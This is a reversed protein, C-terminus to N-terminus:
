QCDMAYRCMPMAVYPMLPPLMVVLTVTISGAATCNDTFSPEAALAAAIGAADSCELTVDLDGAM